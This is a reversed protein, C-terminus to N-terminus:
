DVVLPQDGLMVLDGPRLQCRAVRAGNVTTGNTSHLDQLVWTGDRFRLLAHQRSVTPDAFVAGCERHRGLLLRDTAGTWDLALLAPPETAQEAGSALWAWVQSAVRALVAGPSREGGRLTIDGVLRHPEIVRAGALQDLRHALTDHSLLGEGYAAALTKQIQRRLAEARMRPNDWSALEDPVTGHAPIM